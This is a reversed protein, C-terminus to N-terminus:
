GEAASDDLAAWDEAMGELVSRTHEDAIAHEAHVLLARAFPELGMMSTSVRVVVGSSSELRFWKMFAGYRISRLEAWKMSVKRGGFRRFVAGDALLEHRVTLCQIFLFLALTTFLAPAVFGDSRWPVYASWFGEWAVYGFGIAGALGVLLFSRPMRMLRKNAYAAVRDKHDCWILFAIVVFVAVAFFVKKLWGPFIKPTTYEITVGFSRQMERLADGDGREAAKQMWHRALEVDRPVHKGFWYLGSLEKQAWVDGLMAAQQWDAVGEAIRNERLNCWGRRALVEGARGDPKALWHTAVAIAEACKERNVLAYMLYWGASSNDPDLELVKRYRREAEAPDHRGRLALRAEEVLITGEFRRSQEPSLISKSDAVFARMQGLSGGEIPRQSLLFEHRVIFNDPDIANAADLLRVSQRRGIWGSLDMAHFYSLLPKDDLEMSAYLDRAAINHAQKKLALRVDNSSDVPPDFGLQKYYIGRALRDAYSKPYQEVWRDLHHVESSDVRYFPRFAALLDEDTIVDRKYDDQVGQMLREVQAYDASLLPPIPDPADALACANLVFLLVAAFSRLGQGV